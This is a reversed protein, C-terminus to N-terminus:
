LDLIFLWTSLPTPELRLDRREESRCALMSDCWCSIISRMVASRGTSLCCIDLFMRGLRSANSTINIQFM